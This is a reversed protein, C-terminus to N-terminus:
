QKVQGDTINVRHTIMTMGDARVLIASLWNSQPVSPATAVQYIGGAALPELELSTSNLYLNTGTKEEQVAGLLVQAGLPEDVILDFNYKEGTTVTNPAVVKVQPPNNGSTLQSQETLIEQRVLKQGQFYQRSRISSDLKSQRGAETQMGSITTLTEAVLEDGSKSWSKIETTYKLQPYNQWMQTLAKSLTATTLGDSNKFDKSYYSIVQDLDQNNAAEEIGTIVQTIEDPATAANEAQAIDIMGGIIGLNLLLVTAFKKM